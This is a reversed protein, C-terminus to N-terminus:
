CGARARVGLRPFAGHQQGVQGAEAFEEGPPIRRRPQKRQGGGPGPDRLPVGLVGELRQLVQAAHHGLAHPLPETNLEDDRVLASGVGGAAQEPQELRRLGLRRPQQRLDHEDVRGLRGLLHHGPESGGAAM